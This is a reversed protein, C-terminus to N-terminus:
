GHRLSIKEFMVVIGATIGYVIDVDANSDASSDFFLHLDSALNGEAKWHCVLIPLRPLPSLIMSIDSDFLGSTKRGNFILILDEFLGPYRDAIRKFSNEPRKVFLGNKERGGALERFPVWKGTLATGRCKLIYGLVPSTIWPNIHIDSFMNGRSDITLPKGFIKLTLRGNNFVGGTRLAADKLDTQRIQQKLEQLVQKQYQESLSQKQSQNGHKELVATEIYPCQDLQKRGLFVKGAFALCTTENCQRCNTKPLLKFVAMANNFQTM